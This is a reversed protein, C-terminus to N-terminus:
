CPKTEKLTGFKRLSFFQLYLGALTVAGILALILWPLAPAHTKRAHDLLVGGGTYGALGGFAFGIKGMGMYTARAHARAHRALLAERAPETILSGIYFLTLVCLAATFGGVLAMGALSATMLAIGAMVRTELSFYREGLRALPYLLCLALVGDLCYMWGVARSSGALQKVVVPVLLMIQVTLVYYGSLTFVLLLFPKDSWVARLSALPSVRQSALHYAPLAVANVMAATFFVGSGLMAVWFFDVSLLYSGLLAGGMAAASDQMMLLSYFRNREHPRTLKIVLASRAPDFLAGGLGSLICSFVLLGPSEALAMTAFGASRLLMGGVVLPKVGFRDAL